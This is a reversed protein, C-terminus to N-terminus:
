RGARIRVGAGGVGAGSEIERAVAGGAVGQGRLGEEGGVLTVQPADDDVREAVERDGSAVRLPEVVIHVRQHLVEVHM